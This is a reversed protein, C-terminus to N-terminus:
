VHKDVLYKGAPDKLAPLSLLHYLGDPCVYLRTFGLLLPDLNKWVTKWADQELQKATAKERFALIAADVTAGDGLVVLKLAAPTLVFAYYVPKKATESSPVLVVDVCAEGNLLCGKIQDPGVPVQEKQNKFDESQLALQREM